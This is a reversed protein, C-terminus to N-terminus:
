EDVKDEMRDAMEKLGSAVKRAEEPSLATRAKRQYAESATPKDDLVVQGEPVTQIVGLEVIPEEDEDFMGAIPVTSYLNYRETDDSYENSNM